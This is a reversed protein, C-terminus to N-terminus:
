QINIDFCFVALVRFDGIVSGLNVWVAIKRFYHYLLPRSTIFSIYTYTQMILKSVSVDNGHLVIVFPVTSTSPGCIM